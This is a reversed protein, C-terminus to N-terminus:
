SNAIKTCVPPVGATAHMAASLLESHGCDCEVVVRDDPGLDSVHAAYLPVV